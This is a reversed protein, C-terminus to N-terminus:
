AAGSVAVGLPLQIEVATGRGESSEIKVHGGHEEVIRKVISLGLGTGTAKTTFFPEFARALQGAGMGQGTDAIRLSAFGGIGGLATTLTGGGSMAQLANVYVNVLALRMQHPDLMISPLAPDVQWQAVVGPAEARSRRAAVLADEAVGALSCQELKPAMPRAFGLLDNVMQNLRSSEEEMVAILLQVQPGAPVARKLSALSNFIAGLPNRVEHAVIAALEGLAAFRERRVLEAQTHRLEDLSRRLEELLRDREREVRLRETIDRFSWVRGVVEAGVVQPRSYREFVRGDLFEIVDSSESSSTYLKRIQTLFAEPETLQDLVFAIARQDDRSAMVDASLRWMAVFRQNYGVIKGAGDVILIGDATAELTARMMSAAAEGQRSDGGDDTM